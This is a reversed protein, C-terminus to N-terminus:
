TRGPSPATGPATAACIMNIAKICEQVEKNIRFVTEIKEQVTELATKSLFGKGRVQISTFQDTIHKFDAEAQNLLNQTKECLPKALSNGVAKAIAVDHKARFRPWESMCKTTNKVVTTHLEDYKLGWHEPHVARMEDSRPVEVHYGGASEAQQQEPLDRPIGKLERGGIGERTEMAPGGDFGSAKIFEDITEESPM